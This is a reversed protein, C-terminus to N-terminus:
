MVISWLAGIYRWLCRYWATCYKRRREEGTMEAAPKITVADVGM